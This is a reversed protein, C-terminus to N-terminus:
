SAASLHRDPFESGKPRLLTFRYESHIEDSLNLWDAASKSAELTWTEPTIQEFDDFGTLFPEGMRAMTSFFETAYPASSALIRPTVHDVWFRSLPNKLVKGVSDLLESLDNRELYMSVGEVVVLTSQRPDFGQDTLKELWGETRLDAAVSRMPDDIGNKEYRNKRHKLGAELDVGYWKAQTKLRLPRTDLGAGVLLIQEFQSPHTLITEDLQETRAKVLTQLMPTTQLMRNALARGQQGAVLQSWPDERLGAVLLASVKHSHAQIMNTEAGKERPVMAFIVQKLRVSSVRRAGQFIDVTADFRAQGHTALDSRIQAILEPSPRWAVQITGTGAALHTIESSLTWIQVPTSRDPNHLGVATTGPLACVTAVAVIWDALLYHNSALQIANQNMPKELLPIEGEAGFTGAATIRGGVFELVPVVEHCRRTLLEINCREAHLTLDEQDPEITLAKFYM